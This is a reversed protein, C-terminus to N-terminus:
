SRQRKLSCLTGAIELASDRKLVMNLTELRGNPWVPVVVLSDQIEGFMYDMVAPQVLPMDAPLTICLEADVAKLGTYIAILPGGLDDIKEDVVIKADEISNESLVKLYQLKRTEDNVCIVVDDVVQCLNQLAHIVLPKGALKALTKDQWEENEEQFREARGGALVIGARKVM